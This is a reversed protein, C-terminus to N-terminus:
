PYSDSVRPAYQHGPYRSPKSGANPSPKAGYIDADLLGVKAGQQTLAIALNVATTSKGVGGKDSAIGLTTKVGPITCRQIYTKRCWTLEKLRNQLAEELYLQNQGIYLRLYLYNDVVQLNRVMGLDVINRNLVPVIIQKLLAIVAQQRELQQQELQQPELPRDDERNSPNPEADPFPKQTM